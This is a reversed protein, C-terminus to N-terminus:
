KAEGLEQTREGADERWGGGLAEYLHVVAQMRALTAQALQDQAAFFTQQAQLLPILDATGQRYQLAAIGFAERAAEVERQLHLEAEGNNHVQGIATEVDAFSNLVALQYDAVLEQQTARAFAAQARLTGGDFVTQLLSGSAAWVLNPGQLLTKLASSAYGDSGSLSFQPLFAARAADLNAHASALEAEAQAVDPRRQLLESPLGARVQPLRIDDPGSAQVMLAQPPRGILVALTVRAELELEKLQAAQAAVSEVQAREQALDLHSTKGTEVRLEITKLIQGIAGSNQQTIDIRRRLALVSFYTNAVAATIALDATQRAFRSAKLSEQAAHWHSRAEGFLDVEYSAGSSVGFSNATGAALSPQANGFKARQGQAQINVQPFLAARNLAAQARAELIRADAATLSQNDARARAILESLESSGFENWWDPKPWLAEVAGPESTFASPMLEPRLAQPIPTACGTLVLASLAAGAAWPSRQRLRTM